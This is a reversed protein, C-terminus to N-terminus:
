SPTRLNSMLMWWYLHKMPPRYIADAGLLYGALSALKWGDDQEAPFNPTTLKAMGRVEGFVRVRSIELFEDVTQWAWQFTGTTTSLSGVLRVDAIVTPKAPDTFTLTNSEDNWDWRAMENWSWTANSRQQRHQMVHRAHHVLKDAAAESLRATTEASALHPVDRNLARSEEYCRTCLMKIDALAEDTWGGANNVAEECLDCWADPWPDEPDEVSTWFGCAVGDSLHRCVFTTPTGGHTDCDILDPESM